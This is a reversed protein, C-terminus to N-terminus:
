LLDVDARKLQWVKLRSQSIFFTHIYTHIYIYFYTKNDRSIEAIQRMVQMNQQNMELLFQHQHAQMNAMVQLQQWVLELQSERALQQEKVEEEKFTLDMESQEKWQLGALLVETVDGSRRKRNPTSEEREPEKPKERRM